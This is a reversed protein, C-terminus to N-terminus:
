SRNLYINLGFIYLRNEGEWKYLRNYDKYFPYFVCGKYLYRTHNKRALISLFKLFM